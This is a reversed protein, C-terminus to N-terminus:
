AFFIFAEGTKGLAFFSKITNLNKINNFSSPRTSRFNIGKRVFFFLYYIEQFCKNIAGTCM